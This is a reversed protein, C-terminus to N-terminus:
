GSSCGYLSLEAEQQPVQIVVTGQHFSEEESLQQAEQIWVLVKNTAEATTRQEEEGHSMSDAARGGQKIQRGHRNAYRNWSLDPVDAPKQPQPKDRLADTQDKEPKEGAEM